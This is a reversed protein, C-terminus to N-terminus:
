MQAINPTSKKEEKEEALRKRNHHEIEIYILRISLHYCMRVSPDARMHISLWVSWMWQWKFLSSNFTGNTANIPAVDFSYRYWYTKKGEITIRCKEVLIEFEIWVCSPFTARELRYWAHSMILEFINFKSDLANSWDNFDAFWEIALGFPFEEYKVNWSHWAM